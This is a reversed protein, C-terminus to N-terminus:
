VSLTKYYPCDLSFDSILLLKKKGNVLINITNFM